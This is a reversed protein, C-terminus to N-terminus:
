VVALGMRLELVVLIDFPYASLFVLRLVLVRRSNSCKYTAALKAKRNTDRRAQMRLRSSVGHGEELLGREIVPLLWWGM